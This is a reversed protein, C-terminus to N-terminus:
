IALREDGLGLCGLHQVHALAADLAGVDNPFVAGGFQLGTDAPPTASRLSPM